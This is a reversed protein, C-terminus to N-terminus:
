RCRPGSVEITPPQGTCKPHTAVDRGKIGSALLVGGVLQSLSLHRWVKDFTGWLAFEGRILVAARVDGM